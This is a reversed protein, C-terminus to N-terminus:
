LNEIRAIVQGARVQDGVDISIDVLRGAGPTVIENMGSPRILICSANVMSPISGFVGWAVVGVVIGCQALLAVWGKPSTVQMLLDLQEPSSLRELSVKRFIQTKDAM